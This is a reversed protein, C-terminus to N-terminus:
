GATPTALTRLTKEVKPKLEDQWYREFVPALIQEIPKTDKEHMSDITDRIFHAQAPSCVALLAHLDQEDLDQLAQSM